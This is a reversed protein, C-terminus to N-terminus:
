RLDQVLARLGMARLLAQRRSGAAEGRMTRICGSTLRSRASERNEGRITNGAVWNRHYCEM